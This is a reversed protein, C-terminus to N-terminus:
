SASGSGNLRRQRLLPSMDVEVRKKPNQMRKNSRVLGMAKSMIFITQRVQSHTKCSTCWVCGSLAILGEARKTAAKVPVSSRTMRSCKTRFAYVCSILCRAAWCVICAGSSVHQSQQTGEPLEAMYRSPRYEPDAVPRDDAWAMPRLDPQQMMQQSHDHRAFEAHPMPVDDLVHQLHAPQMQPHHTLDSGPMHPDYPRQQSGHLWAQEQSHMQQGRVYPADGQSLQAYHQAQQQSYYAPQSVDFQAQHHGPMDVLQPEPRSVAPPELPQPSLQHSAYLEAPLGSHPVAAGEQLNPRHMAVQSLGQRATDPQASHHMPVAPVQSCQHHAHLRRHLEPDENQQRVLSQSQAPQSHFGAEHRPRPASDTGLHLSLQGSALAASLEPPLAAVAAGPFAHQSRQPMQQYGVQHRADAMPRQGCPAISPGLVGAALAASLEPSLITSLQAGSPMQSASMDLAAGPSHIHGEPKIGGHHGFSPASVGPEAKIPGVDHLAHNTKHQSHRGAPVHTPHHQHLGGHMSQQHAAQQDHGIPAFGAQSDVGPQYHKHMSGEALPPVLQQMSGEHQTNNSHSPDSHFAEPIYPDYVAGSSQESHGHYADPQSGVPGEPRNDHADYHALPSFGDQKYGSVNPQQESQFSGPATASGLPAEHGPLGAAVPPGHTGPHQGPLPQTHQQYGQLGQAAPPVACGAYAVSHSPLVGSYQMAVAHSGHEPGSSPLPPGSLPQWPAVSSLMGSPASGVAQQQQSASRGSSHAHQLYHEAHGSRLVWHESSSAHPVAPEQHEGTNASGQPHQDQSDSRDHSNPNSVPPQHEPILSALRNPSYQPSWVPEVPTDVPEGSQEATDSNPMDDFVPPAEQVGVTLGACAAYPVFHAHKSYGDSTVQCDSTAQCCQLCQASHGCQVLLWYCIVYCTSGLGLSCAQPIHTVCDHFLVSDCSYLFQAHGFCYM